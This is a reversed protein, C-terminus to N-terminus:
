MSIDTLHWTEDTSQYRLDVSYTNRLKAGFSNEADVYASVRYECRARQEITVGESSMWPFVATAPAKLKKKVFEQSMVFAMSKTGCENPGKPKSSSGMWYLVVGGLM